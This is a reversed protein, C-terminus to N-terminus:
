GMSAPTPLNDNGLPINRGHNFITIQYGTCLVPLGLDSEQQLAATTGASQTTIGQWIVETQDLNIVNLWLSTNSALCQLVALENVNFAVPFLTGSSRDRDSSPSKTERPPTLPNIWRLKIERPGAHTVAYM